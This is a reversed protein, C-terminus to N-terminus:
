DQLVYVDTLAQWGKGDFIRSDPGVGSHSEVTMGNRILVVHGIKQPSDQPSLFAIRIRDDTLKGDAVTAAPFKQAKVWDHQTVSGDPFATARPNTSRRIAARVFGSCDVATFDVGPRSSDSPIKAGLKYGVRPNSTQCDTLFTTVRDWDINLAPPADAKNEAFDQPGQVGDNALRRAKAFDGVVEEDSDPAAPDETREGPKAGNGGYGNGQSSRFYSAVVPIVLGVFTTAANKILLPVDDGTGAFAWIICATVGVALWGWAYIIVLNRELWGTWGRASPDPEPQGLAVAVVSGVLVSVSTWIHDVGEGPGAVPVFTLEPWVYHIAYSAFTAVYAVLTLVALTVVLSKLRPNMDGGSNVLFFDHRLSLRIPRDRASSSQPDAM